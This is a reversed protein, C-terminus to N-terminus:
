RTPPKQQVLEKKYDRNFSFAVDEVTLPYDRRLPHGEWNEPMILRKLNPHGEVAIGFMDFLEREPFNAGAWIATVSPVSPHEEGIGVRLRISHNKEISHFEYVAEFRPERDLDLYDVGSINSLYDFDLDPDEKLWRAVRPLSEPAIHVVADGLTVEGKLVAKGLSTRVREVIEESTM